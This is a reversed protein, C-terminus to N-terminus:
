LITYVMTHLATCLSRIYANYLIRFLLTFRHTTYFVAWHAIYLVCLIFLVTHILACYSTCCLVHACLVCHQKCLIIYLVTHQNSLHATFSTCLSTCLVHLTGVPSTHLMSYKIGQVSSHPSTYYQTNPICYSVTLNLFSHPGMTFILPDM